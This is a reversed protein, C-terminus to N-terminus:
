VLVGKCIVQIQPLSLMETPLYDFLQELFPSARTGTDSAGNEGPPEPNVRVDSGAQTCGTCSPQLGANKWRVWGAM